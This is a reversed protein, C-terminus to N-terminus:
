AFLRRDEDTGRRSSPLDKRSRIGVPEAGEDESHVAQDHAAQGVLRPSQSRTLSTM